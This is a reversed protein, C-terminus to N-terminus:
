QKPRNGRTTSDTVIQKMLAGAAINVSDIRASPAETTVGSRCDGARACGSAEAGHGAVTGLMLTLAVGAAQIITRIM